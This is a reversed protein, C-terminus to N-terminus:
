DAKRVSGMGGGRTRQKGRRERQQRRKDERSAAKDDDWGSGWDDQSESKVPRFSTAKKPPAPDNWASDGWSDFAPSASKQAPSASKPVPKFAPSISKQAPKFAPKSPKPPPAPDDWGGSWDDVDESKAPKTEPLTRPPAPKDQSWDDWESAPESVKLNFDDWESKAPAKDRSKGSDVGM